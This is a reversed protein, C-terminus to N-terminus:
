RSDDSENSEGEKRQVLKRARNFAAALESELGPFAGGLQQGVRSRGLCSRSEGLGVACHCLVM